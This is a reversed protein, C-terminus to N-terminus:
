VVLVAAFIERTVFEKAEKDSGNNRFDIHSIHHVIPFPHVREGLVETKEQQYQEVLVRYQYEKM